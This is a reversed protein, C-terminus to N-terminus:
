HHIFCRERKRESEDENIRAAAADLSYFESDLLVGHLHVRFCDSVLKREAIVARAKWFLAASKASVAAGVGGVSLM